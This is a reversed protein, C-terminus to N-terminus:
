TAKKRDSKQLVNTKNIKSLHLVVQNLVTDEYLSPEVWGENEWARLITPFGSGANDGFGGMRLMTQM